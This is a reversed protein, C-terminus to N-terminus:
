IGFDQNTLLLSDNDNSKNLINLLKLNHKILRQLNSESTLGLSKLIATNLLQNIHELKDRAFIKIFQPSEMPNDFALLSFLENLINTFEISNFERQLDQGFKLAEITQSKKIFLLFIQCKLAFLIEKNEKFVKPFNKDVLEIVKFFNEDKMLYKRINSRIKLNDENSDLKQKESQKQSQRKLIENQFTKGVEIFGLHNFYSSILKNSIIPIDKDKIKNIKELDNDGNDNLLIKKKIKLKEDDIYGDINFIFENQGFNTKISNGNKLGVIPILSKNIDNFAVGLYVGNKTYFISKSAFNVGCGIIDGLGFKRNFNKNISNNAHISGDIGNFGYSGIELGPFKNINSISSKIFGISIDCNGRKNNNTVSLIEIEYYFLGTNISIEHNSKTVYSELNKSIQLPEVKLKLGNNSINLNKNGNISSEWKTPLPYKNETIKLIPHDHDNFEDFEDENYLVNINENDMDEDDDDGDELNNDENDDEDESDLLADEDYFDDENDDDEDDEEEDNDIHDDDIDMLDNNDNYQNSSNITRLRSLSGESIRRSSRRRQHNFINQVDEIYSTNIFKGPNKGMIGMISLKNNLDKSDKDIPISTNLKKELEEGFTTKLLYSPIQIKTISKSRSKRKLGDNLNSM